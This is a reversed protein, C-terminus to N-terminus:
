FPPEDDDSVDDPLQDEVESSVDKKPTSKVVVEPAPKPAAKKSSMSFMEGIRAQARGEYMEHTVQARFQRGVFQNITATGTPPAGIADLFIELRWRAQPSLSVIFFVSKGEEGTSLCTLTFKWYPGKPGEAEEGSSIKFSHIGETVPANATRDLSIQFDSM